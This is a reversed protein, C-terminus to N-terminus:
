KKKVKKSKAKDLAVMCDLSCFVNNDMQFKVEDQVKFKKKCKKCTLTKM